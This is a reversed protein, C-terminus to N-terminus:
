LVGDRTGRLLAHGAFAHDLRLLLPSSAHSERLGVSIVLIGGLSGLRWRRGTPRRQNWGAARRELGRVRRVTASLGEVWTGGRERGGRGRGPRLLVLFEQASEAERTRGRLAPRGLWPTV